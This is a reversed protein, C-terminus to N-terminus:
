PGYLGHQSRSREALPSRESELILFFRERLSASPLVRWARCTYVRIRQRCSSYLCCRPNLVGGIPVGSHIPQWGCLWIIAQLGAKSHLIHAYRPHRYGHFVFELNSGYFSVPKSPQRYSDFEGSPLIGSHSDSACNQSRSREILQSRDDLPKQVALSIRHASLRLEIM